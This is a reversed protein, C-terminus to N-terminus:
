KVYTEWIKRIRRIDQLIKFPKGFNAPSHRSWRSTTTTSRWPRRRRHMWTWPRCYCRCGPLEGVSLQTPNSTQHHKIKWFLVMSPVLHFLLKMSSWLFTLMRWSIFNLTPAMNFHWCGEYGNFLQVDTVSWNGLHQVTNDNHTGNKRPAADIVLTHFNAQVHPFHRRMWPNLAVASIWMWWRCCLQFWWSTWCNPKQIQIAFCAEFHGTWPIVMMEWCGLANLRGPSGQPVVWCRHTAGHRQLGPFGFRWLLKPHFRPGKWSGETSLSAPFFMDWKKSTESPTWCKKLKMCHCVWVTKEPLRM